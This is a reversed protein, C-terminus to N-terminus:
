TARMESYSPRRREMRKCCCGARTSGPLRMHRPEMYSVDTPTSSKLRSFKPLSQELLIFFFSAQYSPVLRFFSELTESLERGPFSLIKGDPTPFRLTIRNQLEPAVVADTGEAFKTFSARSGAVEVSPVDTGDFPSVYLKTFGFNAM